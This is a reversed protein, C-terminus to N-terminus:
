DVIVTLSNKADKNAVVRFSGKENMIQMLQEGEGYGRSTELIKNDSFLWMLKTNSLNTIALYDGVRVSVSTPSFKEGDFEVYNIFDSKNGANETSITTRKIISQADMPPVVDKVLYMHALFGLGFCVLMIIIKKM